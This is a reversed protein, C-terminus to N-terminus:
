NKALRIFRTLPVYWFRYRLIQKKRRFLGYLFRSLDCVEWTKFYIGLYILGGSESLKKFCTDYWSSYLEIVLTEPRCFIINVLGGGHYSIVKESSHFINAISDIDFEAPDLVRYGMMKAVSELLNSNIPKRWSRGYYLGSKRKLMIKQHSSGLDKYDFLSNAFRKIRHLNTSIKQTDLTIVRLTRVQIVRRQSALYVESGPFNERIYRTFFDLTSRSMNENLIFNNSNALDNNQLFDLKSIMYILSEYHLFDVGSGLFIANDLSCNAEYFNSLIHLDEKETVYFRSPESLMHPDSFYFIKEKENFLVSPAIVQVESMDVFELIKNPVTGLKQPTKGSQYSRM